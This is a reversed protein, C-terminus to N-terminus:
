EEEDLEVEEDFKEVFEDVLDESVVEEAVEAVVEEKVESNVFILETGDTYTLYNDLPHNRVKCPGHFVRLRDGILTKGEPVFITRKSM